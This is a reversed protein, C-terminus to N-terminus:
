ADPPPEWAYISRLADLDIGVREIQPPMESFERLLKDTWFITVRLWERLLLHEQIAPETALHPIVEIHPNPGTKRARVFVLETDVKLAKRKGASDRSPVVCDRTHTIEIATRIPLAWVPETTRHKDGANIKALLAFAFWARIGRAHKYPQYRRVRAIDARTAGPLKTPLSGNFDLRDKCIPFYIKRQAKESLTGPPTRGRTVIAWATQDLASHLNNAIDSILLGWTPPMPDIDTVIVAFGHRKPQYEAEVTFTPQSGGDSGIADLDAKLTQAHVVARGWKLWASEFLRDYTEVGAV